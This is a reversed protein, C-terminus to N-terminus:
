DGSQSPERVIWLDPDWRDESVQLRDVLGLFRLDSLIVRISTLSCYHPTNKRVSLYVERASAGELDQIAELVIRQRQAYKSVLVPYSRKCGAIIPGVPPLYSNHRSSGSLTM